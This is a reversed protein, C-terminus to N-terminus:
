SQRFSEREYEKIRLNTLRAMKEYIQARTKIRVRQLSISINRYM